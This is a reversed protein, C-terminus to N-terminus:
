YHHESSWRMQKVFIRSPFSVRAVTRLNLVTSYWAATSLIRSQSGTQLWGTTLLWFISSCTVLDASFVKFCQPFRSIYPLLYMGIECYGNQSGPNLKTGLSGLALQKVCLRVPSTHTVRSLVLVPRKNAPQAHSKKSLQSIFHSNLPKNKRQISFLYTTVSQEALCHM